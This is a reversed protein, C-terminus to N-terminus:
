QRKFVLSKFKQYKKLASDQDNTNIHNYGPFSKPEFSYCNVIKTKTKEAAREFQFMGDYYPTDVSSIIVRGKEDILETAEQLFHRILYHNTSKGYKTNRKGTHPFQFVITNVFGINRESFYSRLKNADVGHLVKVGERLLFKANKHAEVSLEEKAEFTTAFMQKIGSNFNSLLSKSFSLNGEGVLIVNGLNKWIPATFDNKRVASSYM